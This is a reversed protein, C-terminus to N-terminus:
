ILKKVNIVPCSVVNLLLFASIVCWGDESSYVCVLFHIKLTCFSYLVFPSNKFSQPVAGGLRLFSLTFLVGCRVLWLNRCARLEFTSEKSDYVGVSLLSWRFCGGLDGQLCRTM